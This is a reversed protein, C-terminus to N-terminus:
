SWKLMWILFASENVIYASIMKYGIEGRNNTDVEFNLDIGATDILYSKFKEM